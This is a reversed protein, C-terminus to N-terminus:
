AQGGASGSSRVTDVGATLADQAVQQLRADLSLRLPTAPRGALAREISQAVPRLAPFYACAGSPSSTPSIPRAATWSRLRLVSQGTRM